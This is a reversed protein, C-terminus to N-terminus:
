DTWCFLTQKLPTWLSRKQSRAMTSHRRRHPHIKKGVPISTQTFLELLPLYNNSDSSSVGLRDTRFTWMQSAQGMTKIFNWSSEAGNVAKFYITASLIREMINDTKYEIGHEFSHFNLTSGDFVWIERSSELAEAIDNQRQVVNSLTTNATGEETCSFNQFYSWILCIWYIHVDHLQTTSVNIQTLRCVCEPCGLSHTNLSGKLMKKLDSNFNQCIAM